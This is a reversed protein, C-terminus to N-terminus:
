VDFRYTNTPTLKGYVYVNIIIKEQSSKSCVDEASIKEAKPELAEFHFNIM